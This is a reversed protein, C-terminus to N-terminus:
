QLESKKLSIGGNQTTIHIPAGGGNVAFEIKRPQREGNNSRNDMMPMTPMPFDSSIRGNTTEAQVRASLQAPMAVNVGGNKTTLEMQRGDWRTGAVEVNIGGNYTSGTVDGMVRKLNVGGNYAEFHIQGRVDQINIGGNYTKLSVDGNQPVFIEYSVSWSNRDEKDTREPGTARVQGGSSDINVRSAINAAAGENEAFAEVRTRVLVENRLWGKVTAGGNRGADITLRGIPAVSQERMECHRARDNDSNGNQCSLQKETNDHLQAFSNVGLGIWAATLLVKKMLIEKGATM